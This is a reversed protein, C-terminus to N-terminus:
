RTGVGPGAAARVVVQQLRVLEHSHRLVPLSKLDSAQLRDGIQLAEDAALLQPRLALQEGLDIVAPVQQAEAM